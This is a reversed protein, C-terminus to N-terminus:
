KWSNKCLQYLDYLEQETEDIAAVIIPAIIDFLELNDRYKYHNDGNTDIEILKKM